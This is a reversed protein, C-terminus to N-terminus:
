TAQGDLTDPIPRRIHKRGGCALVNKPLGGGGGGYKDRNKGVRAQVECRKKKFVKFKLFIFPLFM